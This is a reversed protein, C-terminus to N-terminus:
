GGHRSDSGFLFPSSVFPKTARSTTPNFNNIRFAATMIFLYIHTNTHAYIYMCVYMCVYM